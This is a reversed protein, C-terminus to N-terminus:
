LPPTPTPAEKRTLLPSPRSVIHSSYDKEVLSFTLEGNRIRRLSGVTFYPPPSM